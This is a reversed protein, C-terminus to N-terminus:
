HAQKFLNNSTFQIKNSTSGATMEVVEGKKLKKRKSMHIPIDLVPIVTHIGM